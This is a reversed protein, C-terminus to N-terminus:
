LIIGQEILRAIVQEQLKLLEARSTIPARAQDPPTFTHAAYMPAYLDFRQRSVLNAMGTQRRYRRLAGLDITASAVMTEGQDAEALVVGAYDVIKSRGDASQAPM